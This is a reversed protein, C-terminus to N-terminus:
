RNEAEERSLMLVYEVAESESLALMNLTSRQERERGTTHWAYANEQELERKSENIVKHLDYRGPLFQGKPFPNRNARAHKSKDPADRDHIQGVKWSMARNDAITLLLEKEIVIKSIGGVERGPAARPVPSSFLRLPELTLADGITATGRVSGTALVVSSWALATVAGDEHAEFRRAPVVSSSTQPTYWDLRERSNSMHLSLHEVTSNYGFSPDGFATTEYKGSTLDVVVRYFFPHDSYGILLAATTQSHRRVCLVTPQPKPIFEDQPSPQGKSIPWLAFM